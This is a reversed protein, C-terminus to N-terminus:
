AGCAALARDLDAELDEGDEIGVSLRVMGDGIGLRTREEVPVSAHTMTAPHCVLSEVGGLSEALTFLRLAECFARARDLTGLDLSIMAGFGAQQRRALEHQPHSSLGPYFVEGVATHHALFAALRRGNAEHAAIRVALTRIGRLVLYADFPGMIAGASNQVTRMRQALAADRAVAVGGVADSHGNLYKTTSHVVLDAGFSFPRQLVPSLFTNDVVLLAEHRHAIEAAAVLDVLRMMPNTPTEVFVMRTRPTCAASLNAPDSADVFRVAVGHGATITTFLRYSGGYLNDVAVVEDGSALLDTVADIAAMGSAFACADVGGELEAMALELAARTPNGTRSYEWGRHHGFGAYAYTSTAYIPVTVAGTTPDAGGGAHVCTTSPKM